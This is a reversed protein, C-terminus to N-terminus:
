GCGARGHLANWALGAVLAVLINVAVLPGLGRAAGTSDWNIGHRPEQCAGTEKGETLKNRLRTERDYDARCWLVASPVRRANVLAIGTPGIVSSAQGVLFRSRCTRTFQSSWKYRVLALCKQSRRLTLWQRCCGDM